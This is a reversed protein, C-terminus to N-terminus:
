NVDPGSFFFMKHLFKFYNESNIKVDYDIKFPVKIKSGLISVCSTVDGKEHQRLDYQNVIKM